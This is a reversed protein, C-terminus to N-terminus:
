NLTFSSTDKNKVDNLDKDEILYMFKGLLPMFSNKWDKMYGQWSDENSSIQKFFKLLETIVGKTFCLKSDRCEIKTKFDNLTNFIKSEFDAPDVDRDVFFVSPCISLMKCNSDM